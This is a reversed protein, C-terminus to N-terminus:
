PLDFSELLARSNVDGARLSDKLHLEETEIYAKKKWTFILCQSEQNDKGQGTKLEGQESQM